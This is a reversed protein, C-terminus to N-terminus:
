LFNEGIRIGKELIFKACMFDSNLDMFHIKLQNSRHKYFLGQNKM